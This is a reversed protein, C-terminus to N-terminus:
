DWAWGENTATSSTVGMPLRVLFLLWRLGPLTNAGPRPPVIGGAVGAGCATSADPALTLEVTIAERVRIWTVEM